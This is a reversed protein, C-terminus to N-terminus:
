CPRKINSPKIRQLDPADMLAYRKIDAILIEDLTDVLNMYSCELTPRILIVTEDKSGFRKAVQSQMMRIVRRVGDPSFNTCGQKGVENGLYYYVRNNAALVLNLTKSEATFTSDGKGPIVLSLANPQQLSTTFVFFTILLFGLDVMPTLDVKTSLKNGRRVGAKKNSSSFSSQIDAM